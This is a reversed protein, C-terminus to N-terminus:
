STVASHHLGARSGLSVNPIRLCSPRPCLSWCVPSWVTPMIWDVKIEVTTASDSSESLACEQRKRTTFVSLLRRRHQYRGSLRLRRVLNSSVFARNRAHIPLWYACSIYQVWDENVRLLEHTGHAVQLRRGVNCAASIWGNWENPGNLDQSASKVSKKKGKKMEKGRRQPSIFIEVELYWGWDIQEHNQVSWWCPMREPNIIWLSVHNLACYRTVKILLICSHGQRWELLPGRCCYYGRLASM